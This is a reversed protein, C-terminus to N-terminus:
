INILVRSMPGQLILSVSEYFHLIISNVAPICTRVTQTNFHVPIQPYNLASSMTTLTSIAELTWPVLPEKEIGCTIHGATVFVTIAIPKEPINRSFNELLDIGLLLSQSIASLFYMSCPHMWFPYLSQYFLVPYLKKKWFLWLILTM